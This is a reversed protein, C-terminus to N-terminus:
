VVVDIQDGDELDDNDEIKQSLSITDGDFMLRGNPIGLKELVEKFTSKPDLALKKKEGGPLVFALKKLGELSAPKDPEVLVIKSYDDLLEVMVENPTYELGDIQVDFSEFKEPLTQFVATFPQGKKLIREAQFDDAEFVFILTIDGENKQPAVVPMMPLTVDQDSDDDGDEQLDHLERRLNQVVFDLSQSEFSSALPVPREDDYNSIDIDATLEPPLSMNRNATSSSIIPLIDDDDDDDDLIEHVIHNNQASSSRTRSAIPGTDYIQNPVNNQINNSINGPSNLIKNPSSANKPPTLQSSAKRSPTSSAMPIDSDSSVDSEDVNSNSDMWFNLDEDKSM